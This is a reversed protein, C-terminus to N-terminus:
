SRLFTWDNYIQDRLICYLPDDTKFTTAVLRGRSQQSQKSQLLFLVSFLWWFRVLCELRLHTMTTLLEKERNRRTDLKGVANVESEDVTCPRYSLLM